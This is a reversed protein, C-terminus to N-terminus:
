TNYNHFSNFIIEIREEKELVQQKNLISIDM